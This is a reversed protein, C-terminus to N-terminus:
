IVRKGAREYELLCARAEQIKSIAAHVKVSARMPVNGSEGKIEDLRTKSRELDKRFVDLVESHKEWELKMRREAQPECGM